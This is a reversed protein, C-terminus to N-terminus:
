NEAPVMVKCPSVWGGFERALCEALALTYRDNLRKAVVQFGVPMHSKAGLGMCVQTVPMQFINFIATYGCNNM